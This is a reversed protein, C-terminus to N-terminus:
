TPKTENQVAVQRVDQVMSDPRVTLRPQEFGGRFSVKGQEFKEIFQGETFAAESESDPQCRNKQLLQRARVEFSVKDDMQVLPGLPRSIVRTLKFPLPAFIQHRQGPLPFAPEPRSQNIELINLPIKGSAKCCM